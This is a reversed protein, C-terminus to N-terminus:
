NSDTDSELSVEVKYADIPIEPRLVVSYGDSTKEVTIDRPLVGTSGAFHAQLQKRLKQFEPTNIYVGELM